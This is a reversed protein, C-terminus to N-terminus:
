KLATFSGTLAYTQTQQSIHMTSTFSGKAMSGSVSTLTLTGGDFKHSPFEPIGALDRSDVAASVTGAPITTGVNDRDVIQYTGVTPTTSFTFYISMGGGNLTRSLVLQPAADPSYRSLVDKGLVFQGDIKMSM